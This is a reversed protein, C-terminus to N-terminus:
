VAVEAYQAERSRRWDAAAEKSILIKTGVRIVRPGIGAAWEQYLKSRSLCHSECFQQVTFVAGVERAPSHELSM